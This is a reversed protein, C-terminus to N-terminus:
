YKECDKGLLMRAKAINIQKFEKKGLQKHSATNDGTIMFVAGEKYDHPKIKGANACFLTDEGESIDPFHNHQWTSKYYCMSAGVIYPQANAPYSYLWMESHPRYFYAERLGTLSAGSSQLAAVSKSIWDPAYWDDDDMHLIIEGKAMECGYNRKAGISTFPGAEWETNKSVIDLDDVVRGAWKDSIIILEKNPYDQEWYQHIPRSLRRTPKTPMIVSILPPM